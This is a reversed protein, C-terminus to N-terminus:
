MLGFEILLCRVQIPHLSNMALEHVTARGIATLGNIIGTERELQFHAFWNQKRPNFLPLREKTIPDLGETKAWKHSNCHRCALALNDLKTLGGKSEPIVHDIELFTSSAAQPYLCYECHCHARQTVQQRYDEVSPM